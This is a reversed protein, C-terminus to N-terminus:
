KILVPLRYCAEAKGETNDTDTMVAIADIKEIDLDFYKKFDEQINRKFDQWEGLGDTGSQVVVMHANKTFPNPWHSGVPHERSWVYNVARTQWFFNGEHIVYVRAVFDDGGKSKEKDKRGETILEDAKWSWSLGTGKTVSVREERILGSASAVASAEICEQGQKYQTRGEFIIEKWGEISSDKIESSFVNGSM